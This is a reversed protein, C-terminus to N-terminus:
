VPPTPGTARTLASPTAPSTSGNLQTERAGALQQVQASCCCCSHLSILPGTGKHPQLHRDRVPAATSSPLTQRHSMLPRYTCCAAPASPPRVHRPVTQPNHMLQADQPSRPGFKSAGPPTKPSGDMRRAARGANHKMDSAAESVGSVGVGAGRACCQLAPQRQGWRSTARNERNGGSAHCGLNNSPRRKRNAGERGYTHTGNSGQGTAHTAHTKRATCVNHM